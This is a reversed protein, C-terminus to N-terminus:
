KFQQIILMSKNTANEKLYTHSRYYHERKWQLYKPSKGSIKRSNIELKIRNQDSIMSQIIKM